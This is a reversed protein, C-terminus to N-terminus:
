EAGAINQSQQLSTRWARPRRAEVAGPAHESRIRESLGSGPNRAQAYSLPELNQANQAQFRLSLGRKRNVSTRPGIIM